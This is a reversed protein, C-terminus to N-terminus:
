YTFSDNRDTEHGSNSSYCWCFWCNGNWDAVAPPQLLANQKL